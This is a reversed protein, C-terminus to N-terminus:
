RATIVKGTKADVVVSKIRGDNQRMRLQYVWGNRNTRVLEQSVVKGGVQKEARKRLKSYPMLKESKQAKLANDQETSSRRFSNPVVKPARNKTKKASDQGAQAYEPMASAIAHAPMVATISLSAMLALIFLKQKM